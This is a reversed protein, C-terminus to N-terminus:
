LSLQYKIHGRRTMDYALFNWFWNMNKLFRADILIHECMNHELITLEQDQLDAFSCM